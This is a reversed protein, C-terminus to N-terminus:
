PLFGVRPHPVPAPVPMTRCLKEELEDLIAQGEPTVVLRFQGDFFTGQTPFEDYEIARAYPVEGQYKKLILLKRGSLLFLTNKVDRDRLDTVANRIASVLAGWSTSRGLGDDNFCDAYKLILCQLLENKLM